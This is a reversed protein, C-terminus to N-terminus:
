KKEKKMIKDYTIAEFAKPLNNYNEAPVDIKKAFEKLSDARQKNAQEIQVKFPLLINLIKEPFLEKNQNELINNTSVEDATTPKNM